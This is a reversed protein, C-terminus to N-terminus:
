VDNTTTVKYPRRKFDRSVNRSQVVKTQIATHTLTDESM